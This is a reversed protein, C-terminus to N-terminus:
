SYFSHVFLSLLKYYGGSLLFSPVSMNRTHTFHIAKIGRAANNINSLVLKSENVTKSSVLPSNEPGTM